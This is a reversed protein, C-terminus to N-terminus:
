LGPFMARVSRDLAAVWRAHSAGEPAPSSLAWPILIQRLAGMHRGMMDSARREADQAASAAERARQGAVQARAVSLHRTRAIVASGCFVLGASIASLLVSQLGAAPLTEATVTTLFETRLIILALYALLLVAVVIRRHQSDRTMEIAAMAGVSALLLIGTILLSGMADLGFAEAAWNLPVADLLIVITVLVAGATFGLVRHGAPDLKAALSAARRSAETGASATRAVRQRLELLHTHARVAEELEGAVAPQEQLLVSLAAGAQADLLPDPHEHEPGDPAGPGAVTTMTM